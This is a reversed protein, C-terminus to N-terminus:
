GHFSVLSVLMGCSIQYVVVPESAFSERYSKRQLIETRQPPPVFGAKSKSSRFQFSTLQKSPFLRDNAAVVCLPCHGCACVCVREFVCVEEKHGQRVKTNDREQNSGSVVLWSNAQVPEPAVSVCVYVCEWLRVDVHACVCVCVGWSLPGLRVM